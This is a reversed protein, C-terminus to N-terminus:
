QINVSRQQELSKTMFVTYYLVLLSPILLVAALYCGVVGYSMIQGMEALFTLEGLGMAQFGIVAALTTTTMPKFVAYLTTRMSTEIDQTRVEQKFRSVIQIGFDIGIGMIMSIVGSTASNLNTGIIGLYGMTWMVGVGITVLPVAAFRLSRFLILLVVVIGILSYMTTKGMDDGLYQNVAAGALVDGAPEIVVGQPPTVQSTIEQLDVYLEESDYNSDLSLTLEVMDYQDSYFQRIQPSSEIIDIALRRTQPLVNNNHLLILSVPEQISQVDDVTRVLSTLSQISELVAPDRIDDLQSPYEKDLYLVIKASDSGGFKSEIKQFAVIAPIDDPLADQNDQPVTQVNQSQVVMFMTIILVAIVIYWPHKVIARAYANLLSNSHKSTM